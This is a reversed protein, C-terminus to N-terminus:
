IIYGKELIHNDKKAIFIQNIPFSLSVYDMYTADTSVDLANSFELQFIIERETFNLV